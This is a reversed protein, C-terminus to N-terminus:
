THAAQLDNSGLIRQQSRSKTKSLTIRLVGNRYKAHAGPGDAGAPLPITREFSGYTCEM